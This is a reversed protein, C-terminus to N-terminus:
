TPGGKSQNGHHSNLHSWASETTGGGRQDETRNNLFDNQLSRFLTWQIGLAKGTKDKLNATLYWWETTVEEHAGHDKPFTINLPKELLVAGKHTNFINSFPFSTTPFLSLILLTSFIRLIM